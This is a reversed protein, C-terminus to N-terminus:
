LFKTLYKISFIDLVSICIIKNYWTSNMWFLLKPHNSNKRCIKTSVPFIKRSWTRMNRHELSSEGPWRVQDHESQQGQVGRLHRLLARGREDGPSDGSLPTQSTRWWVIWLFSLKFYREICAIHSNNSSVCHTTNTKNSQNEECRGSYDLNMFSQSFHTLILIFYKMFPGQFPTVTQRMASRPPPHPPTSSTSTAAAAGSRARTWRPTSSAPTRPRPPSPPTATTAAAEHTTAAQCPWTATIRVRSARCLTSINSLIM